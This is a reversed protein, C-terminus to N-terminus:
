SAGTTALRRDERAARRAEARWWQQAVLFGAALGVVDGIAWMLGAGTQQDALLPTDLPRVVSAYHGAALPETMTLLAVGLFAHFPVTLLVILLRAGYPLQTAAPDLGVTVWFFLSGVVLFHLHVWAHVVDNTLSLEYLPSFYLAFLTGSFLAFVVVPHSVLRAPRSHLVRLLNVQTSRHTAQLALTGPAGLALLLPAVIGLLIHQGVHFSFLAEDYTGLPSQTALLLVVLGAAFSASRRMSWSRGRHRLRRVGVAYLAGATLALALPVPDLTWDALLNM